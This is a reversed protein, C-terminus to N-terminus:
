LEVKALDVGAEQLVRITDRTDARITTVTLRSVDGYGKDKLKAILEDADLQPKKVVMIKLTRRMSPKGSAAAKKAPAVTKKAPTKDADKKAAPKKTPAAAPKKAPAQAGSKKAPKDVEADEETEPDDDVEANADAADDAPDGDGVEADEDERDPFGEVDKEANDAKIAANVWEQAGPTKELLDWDEDSLKESAAVALRVLYTQMDEGKKQPKQKTAFLLAQEIKSM